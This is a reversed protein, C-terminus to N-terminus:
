IVAWQIKKFIIHIERVKLDNDFSQYTPSLFSNIQLLTMLDFAQSTPHYYTTFLTTFLTTCKALYFDKLSRVVSRFCLSLESTKSANNIVKKTSRFWM